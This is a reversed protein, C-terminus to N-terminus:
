QAGRARSLRKGMNLALEKLEDDTMLGLVVPLGRPKRQLESLALDLRELEEKLLTERSMSNVLTKLEDAAADGYMAARLKRLDDETMSALDRAKKELETRLYQQANTTLCRDRNVAHEDMAARLQLLTAKSMAKREHEAQKRLLELYVASDGGLESSLARLWDHQEVLAAPEVERPRGATRVKASPPRDGRAIRCAIEFWERRTLKSAPKGAAAAWARVADPSAAVAKGDVGGDVVAREVASRSRKM